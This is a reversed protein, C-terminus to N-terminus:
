KKKRKKYKHTGLRFVVLAIPQKLNVLMLSRSQFMFSPLHDHPKIKVGGRTPRWFHSKSSCIKSSTMKVKARMSWKNLNIKYFIAERNLLNRIANCRNSHKQFCKTRPNRWLVASLAKLTTEKVSSSPWCKFNLFQSKTSRFFTILPTLFLDDDLIWFFDKTFIHLYLLFSFITSRFTSIVFCVDHLHKM